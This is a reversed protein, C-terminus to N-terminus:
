RSQSWAWFTLSCNSSTDKVAKRDWTLVYQGAIIYSVPYEAYTCVLHFDSDASFSQDTTWNMDSYSAFCTIRIQLLLKLLNSILVNKM